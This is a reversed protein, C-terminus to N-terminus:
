VARGAFNLLRTQMDASSPPEIKPAFGGPRRLGEGIPTLFELAKATADPDLSEDLTALVRRHTDVVHAIV